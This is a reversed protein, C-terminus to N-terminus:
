STNIYTCMYVASYLGGVRLSHPLFFSEFPLFFRFGCFLLFKESRFNQLAFLLSLLETLSLFNLQSKEKGGKGETGGMEGEQGNKRRKKRGGERLLEIVGAAITTPHM